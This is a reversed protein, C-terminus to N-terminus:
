ATQLHDRTAALDWFSTGADLSYALICECNAVHAGYGICSYHVWRSVAEPIEQYHEVQIRSARTTNGINCTCSCCDKTHVVLFCSNPEQSPIGHDHCSAPETFRAASDLGFDLLSYYSCLDQSSHLLCITM